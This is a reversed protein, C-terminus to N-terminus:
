YNWPKANVSKAYEVAEKKSAHVTSMGVPRSDKSIVMYHTSGAKSYHSYM